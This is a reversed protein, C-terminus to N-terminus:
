FAQRSPKLDTALTLSGQRPTAAPQPGAASSAPALAGTTLPDPQVFQPVDGHHFGGRIDGIKEAIRAKVAEELKRDYRGEAGASVVFVALLAACALMTRM